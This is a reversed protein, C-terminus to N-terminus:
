DVFALFTINGFSDINYVSLPLIQDFFTIPVYIRGDHSFRYPAGELTRTGGPTHYENAGPYLWAILNGNIFVDVRSYDSNWSVTYGLAEAVHRLPVMTLNYAHNTPLLADYYVTTTNIQSFPLTLPIVGSVLSSLQFEDFLITLGQDTVFFAQEELNISAVGYFEAPNTRLREALIRRALNATGTPMVDSISRLEGTHPCFNISRVFNREIVSSINARILISVMNPTPHIEYHFTISRARGRRADSILDETIQDIQHNIINYSEGFAPLLWPVEGEVALGMQRPALEKRTSWSGSPYAEEIPDIPYIPNTYYDEYYPYQQYFYDAMATVPYAAIIAVLLFIAARRM